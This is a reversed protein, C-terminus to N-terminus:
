KSFNFHKLEGGWSFCLGEVLLEDNKLEISNLDESPETFGLTMHPIFSPSGEPEM